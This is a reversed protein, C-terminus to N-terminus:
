KQVPNNEKSTGIEKKQNDAHSVKKNCFSKCKSYLYKVLQRFRIILNIPSPIRGIYDYIVTYRQFRWLKEADVQVTDYSYSFMAIILNALVFNLILMYLGVITDVVWSQNKSPDTTWLTGKNTCNEHNDLFDLQEDYLQSYGYQIINWIRWKTWDNSWIRQCDPWTIAHKYIGVGLVIVAAIFLFRLMDKLMEKIVILTPGLIRLLLVMELIRLYMVLLALGFMHRAFTYTHDPYVHRVCLAIVLFVYSLLDVVNWFDQIHRFIRFCCSRHPRDSKKKWGFCAILEEIFDGASWIYM